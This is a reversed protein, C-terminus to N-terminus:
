VGELRFMDWNKREESEVFEAILIFTEAAAEM